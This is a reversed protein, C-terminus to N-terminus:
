ARALRAIMRGARALNAALEIDIATVYGFSRALELAM